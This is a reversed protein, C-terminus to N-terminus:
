NSKKSGLLVAAVLAGVGLLGLVVLGGKSKASKEPTEEEVEVAQVVDIKETSNAMGQSPSAVKKNIHKAYLSKFVDLLSDDNNLMENRKDEILPDKPDMENVAKFQKLLNDYKQQVVKPVSELTFGESSKSVLYDQSSLNPM